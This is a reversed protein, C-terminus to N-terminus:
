HRQFYKKQVVLFHLLIRNKENPHELVIMVVTPQLLDYRQDEILSISNWQYCREYFYTTKLNISRPDTNVQALTVQKIPTDM